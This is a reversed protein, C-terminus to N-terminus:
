RLSLCTLGFWPLPPCWKILNNLCIHYLQRRQILILEPNELCYLQYTFYGKFARLLSPYFIYMFLFLIIKYYLTRIRFIIIHTFGKNFLLNKYEILITRRKTARIIKWWIKFNDLSTLNQCCFPPAFPRFPTQFGFFPASRTDFRSFPHLSKVLPTPHRNVISNLTSITVFRYKRLRLIM